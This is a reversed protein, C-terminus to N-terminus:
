KKLFELASEQLECVITCHFEVDGVVTCEPV